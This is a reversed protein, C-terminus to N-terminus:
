NKQVASVRLRLSFIKEKGSQAPAGGRKFVSKM